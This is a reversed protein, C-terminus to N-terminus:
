AISNRLAVGLSEPEFRWGAEIAREADRKLSIGVDFDRRFVGRHHRAAAERRLPANRQARRFWVRLRLLFRELITPRDTESWMGMEEMGPIVTDPSYVIGPVPQYRRNPYVERLRARMNGPPKLLWPTGLYGIRTGQVQRLIPRMWPNARMGVRQKVVDGSFIMNLTEMADRWVIAGIQSWYEEYGVPRRRALRALRRAQPRLRRIIERPDEM